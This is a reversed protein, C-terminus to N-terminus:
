LSTDEFLIQQSRFNFNYIARLQYDVHYRLTTLVQETGLPVKTSWLAQTHLPPVM